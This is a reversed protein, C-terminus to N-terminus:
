TWSDIDQAKGPFKIRFMNYCLWYMIEALCSYVCEWLRRTFGLAAKHISERKLQDCISLLVDNLEDISKPKPQFTHWGDAYSWCSPLWTTQTWSVKPGGPWENNYELLRYWKQRGHWTYPFDKWIETLSYAFMWEPKVLHSITSAKKKLHGCFMSRRQLFFILKGSWDLTLSIECPNNTRLETRFLVFDTFWHWINTPWWFPLHRVFHCICVHSRNIILLM